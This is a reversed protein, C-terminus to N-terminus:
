GDELGGERSGGLADEVVNKLADDVGPLSVSVEGGREVEFDEPLAEFYDSEFLSPEETAQEQVGNARADRLAILQAQMNELAMSWTKGAASEDAGGEPRTSRLSDLASELLGIRHELEGAQISAQAVQSATEYRLADMEATQIALVKRTKEWEFEVSKLHERTASLTDRLSSVEEVDMRSGTLQGQLRAQQALAYDAEDQFLAIQSEAAVKAETVVQLAETTAQLQARTEETETRLAAVRAEAEFGNSIAADVSTQLAALKSAAEDMQKQLTTARAEAKQTAAHAAKIALESAAVQEQLTDRERQLDRTAEELSRVRDGSAEEGKPLRAEMAVVRASSLRNVLPVSLKGLRNPHVNTAIIVPHQHALFTEIIADLRRVEKDFRELGDVLLIARRGQLPRSDEVLNRVKEPIADPTILALGAPLTGARVQKAIAWLLHSKGCGEPGLLLVLAAGMEELAAIRRCVTYAEQNGSAVQFTDFSRGKM